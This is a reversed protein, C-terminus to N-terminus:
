WPLISANKHYCLNIFNKRNKYQQACGDSFYEITKVPPCVLKLDDLVLKIVSHVFSVDHMLDDSLVCYSRHKLFEGEKFYVVVPHLSCQKNSLHYSQIEDQILFIYNEAFDGLFLATEETNNEKRQKLYRAQAKAIYSHTTLKGLQSVVLDVYDVISERCNVLDSRGTTTLQQFEIKDNFQHEFAVKFFHEKLPDNSTPCADCRNVMCERSKPSCVVFHLLDKYSTDIPALLLKINQHISCVCVSHTGSGGALVCWKPRLSSFKSFGIKIEPFKVKFANFLEKINCLILRKQRHDNPAISVCDKKGPMERTFGENICM